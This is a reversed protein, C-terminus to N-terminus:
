KGQSVEDATLFLTAVSDAPLTVAWSRTGLAVSATRAAGANGLAAVVLTSLLPGTLTSSKIM